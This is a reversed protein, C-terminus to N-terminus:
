EGNWILFARPAHGGHQMGDSGKFISSSRQGGGEICVGSWYRTGISNVSHAIQRLSNEGLRQM